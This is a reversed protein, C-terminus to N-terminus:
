LDKRLFSNGSGLLGPNIIRCRNLVTILSIAVVVIVSM